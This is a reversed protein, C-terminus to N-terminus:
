DLLNKRNKFTLCKQTSRCTSHARPLTGIPFDAPFPLAEKLYALQNQIAHPQWLQGLLLAGEAPKLHFSVLDWGDPRM